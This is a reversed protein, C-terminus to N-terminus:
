SVEWEELLHHLHLDLKDVKLELNLKPKGGFRAALKKFQDNIFLYIGGIIPLSAISAGIGGGGAGVGLRFVRGLRTRLLNIVTAFPRRLINNFGFRIARSALLATLQLIKSLGFTIATLTGGIVLLGTALKRQLSKLLDVNGDANANIM